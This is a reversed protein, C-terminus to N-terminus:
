HTEVKDKDYAPIPGHNFWWYTDELDRSWTPGLEYAWVKSGGFPHIQAIEAFSYEEVGKAIPMIVCAQPTDGARDIYIVPDLVNLFIIHLAKDEWPDGNYGHDPCPPLWAVPKLYFRVITDGGDEAVLRDFEAQEIIRTPIGM